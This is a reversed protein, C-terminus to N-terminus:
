GDNEEGEGRMIREQREKEKEIALQLTGVTNKADEINGASAFQSLVHVTRQVPDNMERLVAYIASNLYKEMEKYDALLDFAKERYEGAKFRELQNLVHARAWQDYSEIDCLLPTDDGWIHLYVSLLITMMVRAKSSTSECFTPAFAYEDGQEEEEGNPRVTSTEKVCVRAVDSAIMEKMAIPIYTDAQEMIAKTIKFEDAM